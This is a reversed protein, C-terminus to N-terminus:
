QEKVKASTLEDLAASAAGLAEEISERAATRTVRSDNDLAASIDSLAMASRLIYERLAKRADPNM